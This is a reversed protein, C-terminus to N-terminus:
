ASLARTREYGLTDMLEGALQEFTRVSSEDLEDRWAGSVGKRFHSANNVQGPDRGGSLSKFSTREIIQDILGADADVGLFRYVRGAEERSSDLLREYRVELYREPNARGWQQARTVYPIWNHKTFHYTYREMTAFRKRFSAEDNRINHHWGSVVCDRGDRIIHVVKMEPFVANLPDLALAHEPTKDAIVRIRQPEPLQDVWKRQLTQIAGRAIDLADEGSFTNSEGARQQENYSKLLEFIPSVLLLGFSSEGRSCVEPHAELVGQLWTTGSKPCGVLFTRPLTDAHHPAHHASPHESM